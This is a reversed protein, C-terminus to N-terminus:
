VQYYPKDVALPTRNRAQAREMCNQCLPYCRLNDGDEILTNLQSLLTAIQSLSLDLEFVSKQVRTGHAALIKSVQTRLSDKTIDYAIVHIM